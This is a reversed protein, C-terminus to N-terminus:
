PGGWVVYGREADSATIGWLNESYWPYKDDLSLCFRKHAITATVSNEFYNAHGDRKSRFDVWAHASQHIFLPAHIDNIYRLGDYEFIPREWAEWSSAPIPHSPSGIALLYMGMLECYHDWRSKLFGTEPKWGHDLTDGGNLMWQWDVREYVETALQHIDASEFYARAHLVGLLLLATDISSVESKFAREGTHMDVFHFYFGHEHPMQRALFELTKLVRKRADSPNLFRNAHAVCLASLGFGTAAISSITHTDPETHTARDKVFGTEPDTQEYFFRCARREMELLLNVAEGSKRKASLESALLSFCMGGLSNKLFERRSFHVLGSRKHPINGM